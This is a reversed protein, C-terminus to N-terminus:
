TLFLTSMDITTSSERAQVHPSSANQSAEHLHEEDDGHRSILISLRLPSLDQRASITQQVHWNRGANLPSWPPVSPRSRLTPTAHAASATAQQNVLLADGESRSRAQVHQCSPSESRPRSLLLPCVDRGPLSLTAVRGGCSMMRPTRVLTLTVITCAPERCRRASAPGRRCKGCTM